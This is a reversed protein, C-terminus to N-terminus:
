QSKPLEPAAEGGAIVQWILVKVSEWVSTDCDDQGIFNQDSAAAAWSWNPDACAAKIEFKLAVAYDPSLLIMTKFNETYEELSYELDASFEALASKVYRYDSM